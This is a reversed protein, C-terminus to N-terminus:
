DECLCEGCYTNGKAIPNGCSECQVTEIKRNSLNSPPFEMQSFKYRWHSLKELAKSLKKQAGNAQDEKLERRNADEIKTWKAVDNKCKTIIGRIWNAKQMVKRCEQFSTETM